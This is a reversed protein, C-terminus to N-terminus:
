RILSIDGRHNNTQGDDTELVLLFTYVGSMAEKGKSYGDWLIYKGAILVNSVSYLENGWRDFILFQKIRGIAGAPLSLEMYDNVGDGNPSFINPIFFACKNQLIRVTTDIQCGTSDVLLIEYEGAQLEPIVSSSGTKIGNVWTSFEVSPDVLQITIRGNSLNCDAVQTTISAIDIFGTEILELNGELTCGVEDVVLWSYIGQSLQSFTSSFQPTSQELSYTLMGSGNSVVLNASGNQSGCAPHTIEVSDLRLPESSDITVPDQDVCGHQDQIFVSLSGPPLLTFVSDEQFFVGDTSYLVSDAGQAHIAISGNSLGCSTPTILIDAIIASPISVIETSLTDICGAENIVTVEYIGQGLDNFVNSSQFHIGDIAYQLHDIDFTIVSISGNQLNCTEDTIVLSDIYNVEEAMLTVAVLTSCGRTDEVVITYSGPSLNEFTNEVQFPNANLSYQYPPTGGITTISIMGNPLGCDPNVILTDTIRIPDSAKFEHSTTAGTFVRDLMCVTDSTMAHIDVESILFNGSIFGYFRVNNCDRADTVIGFMGGGVGGADTMVIKSNALNILDVYIILDDNISTMYLAGEFFTLDGAFQYGIDGLLTATGTMPDYTWLEGDRGSIYLLGDKSCTMAQFLQGSFSHVFNTDGTLTDITFLDGGPNIGYLTGDPHFAIDSVNSLEVEVILEKVCDQLNLRWLGDSNILYILQANLIAPAVLFCLM